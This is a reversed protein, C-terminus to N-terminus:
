QVQEEQMVVAGVTVVGTLGRLKIELKRGYLNGMTLRADSTTGDPYFFIPAAWSAEASQPAAAPEAASEVAPDTSEDVIMSVFAIGEPLTEEAEEQAPSVDASADAACADDDAAAPQPSVARSVTFRDKQAGCSFTYKQGSKIAEGRAVGWEARVRDAASRLRLNAMPRDMAPWALAGLAVMIVLVLLVELLTFSRRGARPTKRGPRRDGRGRRTLDKESTELM